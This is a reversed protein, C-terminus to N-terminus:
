SENAGIGRDDLLGQGKSTVEYKARGSLPEVALRAVLGDAILRDVERRQRDNLNLGATRAIEVLASIGTDNPGQESM